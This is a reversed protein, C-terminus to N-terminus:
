FNVLVREAASATLPNRNTLGQQYIISSCWGVAFVMNKEM